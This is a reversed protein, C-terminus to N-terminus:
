NVPPQVAPRTQAVNPSELAAVRFRAERVRAELVNWDATRFRVLANREARLDDLRLEAERLCMRLKQLTLMFPQGTSFRTYPRYARLQVQYDRIEQETLEIAANLERRIRPYEVQWYYLLERKAEDLERRAAAREEASADVEAFAPNLSSLAAVIALAASFFSFRM